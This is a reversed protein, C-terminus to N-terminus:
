SPRLPGDHGRTQSTKMSAGAAEPNGFHAVITDAVRPGVGEVELLQGRSAKKV